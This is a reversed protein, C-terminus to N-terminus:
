STMISRFGWREIAAKIEQFSCKGASELPKGGHHRKDLVVFNVTHDGMFQLALRKGNKKWTARFNGDDTIVLMANNTPVVDGVFFYFDDLSDDSVEIGEESAYGILTDIREKYKEIM